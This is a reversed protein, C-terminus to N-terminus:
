RRTKPGFERVVLPVGDPTTAVCGRDADLLEFDEGAYPDDTTVRRRM